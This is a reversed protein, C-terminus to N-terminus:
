KQACDFSCFWYTTGGFPLRAPASDIGVQMRCVPDIATAEECPRPGEISFLSVPDAVNKFRILGLPVVNTDPLTAAVEAIPPTCLIQGGRAYGAVRAALNLAPGFFGQSTEIVRGAHIGARVTPFLPECEIAARLRVATKVAAEITDAVILVEDGVRQAIRSGPELNKRALAVYRAVAAAAYEGGHTETMATYGSLDAFLFVIDVEKSSTMTEGESSELKM